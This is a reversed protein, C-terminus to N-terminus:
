IWPANECSWTQYRKGEPGRALPHRLFLRCPPQWQLFARTPKCASSVQSLKLKDLYAELAFKWFSGSIRTLKTRGITPGYANVNVASIGQLAFELERCAGGVVQPVETQAVNVPSNNLPATTTFARAMSSTSGRQGSAAAIPPLDLSEFGSYAAPSPPVFRASYAAAPSPRSLRTCVRQCTGEFLFATSIPWKKVGGMKMDEQGQTKTKEGKLEQSLMEAGGGGLSAQGMGIGWGRETAGRDEVNESALGAEERGDSTCIRHLVGELHWLDAPGRTAENAKRNVPTSPGRESAKQTQSDLGYNGGEKSHWRTASNHHSM